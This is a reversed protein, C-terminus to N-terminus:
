QLLAGIWVGDAGDAICVAITFLVWAGGWRNDQRDVLSGAIMLLMEVSDGRKELGARIHVGLSVGSQRGQHPSSARAHHFIQCGMARVDIELTIEAFGRQCLRAPIWFDFTQENLCACM